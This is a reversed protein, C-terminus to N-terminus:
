LSLGSYHGTVLCRQRSVMHMGTRVILLGHGQQARVTGANLHTVTITCVVQDKFFTNSM